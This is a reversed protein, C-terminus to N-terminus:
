WGLFGKLWNRNEDLPVIIYTYTYIVDMILWFIISSSLNIVVHVVFWTVCIRKWTNLLM